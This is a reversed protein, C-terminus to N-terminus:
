IRPPSYTITCEFKENFLAELGRGILLEHIQVHGMANKIGIEVSRDHFDDYANKKSRRLLSFLPSKNQFANIFKEGFTKRALVDDASIDPAYEISIGGLNRCSNALGSLFAIQASIARDTALAYPDRIILEKIDKGDFIAFIDKTPREKGAPVRWVRAGSDIVKGGFVMTPRVAKEQLDWKSAALPEPASTVEVPVVTGTAVENFLESIDGDDAEPPMFLDRTLQRKRELLADLRLDFSSERIGPGPHVALPLHVHVNKTQGIRFVRDTAQDEVAPNWWRSLHIVHNASTLTLGVGGAKPSLIMVGFHQTDQQFTRVMDQRKPGPVGGNIRMPPKDLKFRKYILVALREQMALDEVFILAKENKHSIEDLIELTKSLRASDRAYDDFDNPVLTPDVPHLSVGRMHALIQLMGGPGLTGSAAGAVARMVLSSYAAAQKEPMDVIYPTITKAPLGKLADSKLRRLMYPPKDNAASTLLAKLEQLRPADTAPYRKEFDRSSGLLGPSIVDMISWLDQLRNEVPTGTMGLTFDANLAKCARTMQSVPNKLKQIEDYVILAFHSRAFSFHYDRLTEYTTLVVGADHWSAANLAARGTQIDKLGLGTEDKLYKLDGGFALVLRGLWPSSLHKKIEDQWNGLLGTPAVILFPALPRGGKQMDERLWAMLAIAQLTKGLGMDDALLVGAHHAQLSHVLWDVGEQQHPKVATRVMSPISVPATLDAVQGTFDTLSSSFEVEEFNEKVVLFVKEALQGRWAQAAESFGNPDSSTDVLLGLNTIALRTQENVPLASLPIDGPHTPELLGTVDVSLRQAAQADEFREIILPVNQPAVNYFDDAVKLGFKEPLWKNNGSPLVWPLVTKRWIDVGAVRQSFQETEIFLREFSLTQSQEEGLKERLVTRPNLIFARREIEASDQLVRVAKLVPRLEPDIFIYEGDKLVYVSRVGSERRFRDEAFLKQARPSLINDWDESAERGEINAESATNAGFLVPDFETTDPTLTRLKLSLAAAYHIRIDQLYADSTVPLHSEDTWIAKLESLKQFRETRELPGSLCQAAKHLSWLPEPVRWVAGEAKLIAGALTARIPQGGLRVWTTKLHFSDEDIRGVPKIDLALTTAPPLGLAAATSLGLSAVMAPKLLIETDNATVDDDETEASRELWEAIVLAADPAAQSWQVVPLPLGNRKLTLGLADGKVDYSFAINQAKRTATWFPIKM